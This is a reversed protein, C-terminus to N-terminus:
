ESGPMYRDSYEVKAKQSYKKIFDTKAETYQDRNNIYKVQLALKFIGYQRAIDEHDILYDRFYLESWNDYYRLHLHFVKESFGQKTYGKNFSMNFYPDTSNCMPLWGHETLQNKMHGIDTDPAVELLIDVTPKSILGEVASSGIHSIRKLDEPAIYDILKDKETQYWDKYEKNHVTLIVPFLQWLEEKTMESLEKNM